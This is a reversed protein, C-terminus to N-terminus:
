RDGAKLVTRGLDTLQYIAHGSDTPVAHVWSARELEGISATVYRATASNWAAGGNTRSVQGAGVDALLTLRTKTPYLSM